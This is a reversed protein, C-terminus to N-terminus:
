KGNLCNHINNAISNLLKGYFDKGAPIDTGVPDLVSTRVKTGKTLKATLASPFEPENFVCIIKNNQFLKHIEAIHAAGPEHEPDARVVGVPDLHYDAEFYPYADHFVMYPKHADSKLKETIAAKENSLTALAKKLNAEYTSKHEPDIESLKAATAKLLVNANEVSLWIHPNYAGHHHHHHEHGHDDSHEHGHDDSHEHGDAHEHDHDHDEDEEQWLGTNRSKLLKVDPLEQWVITNKNGLKEVAPPLVTELDDSVWVILDADNLAKVDSPKPEFDHPSGNKLLYEPETVGDTIQAILSQVPKITTVIVPNKAMIASSALSLAITLLTKKM